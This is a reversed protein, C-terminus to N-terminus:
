VRAFLAVVLSHRAHEGVCRSLECGVSRIALDFVDVLNFMQRVMFHVHESLIFVRKRDIRRTSSEIFTDVSAHRGLSVCCCVRTCPKSSISLETRERKLVGAQSRLKQTKYEVVTCDIAAFHDDDIGPQHCHTSAPVATSSDSM